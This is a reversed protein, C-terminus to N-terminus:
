CHVGSLLLLLLIYMLLIVLLLGTITCCFCYYITCSAGINICNVIRLSVHRGQVRGASAAAATSVYVAAHSDIGPCGAHYDSLDVSHGYPAM